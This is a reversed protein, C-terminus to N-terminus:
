RVEVTMPVHAFGRVNSSYFRECHAHDVAVAAVRRVFEQLAVRAELRALNSGLCFHRGGAFSMIRGLQERPRDLDYRDPDPFVAEDRNASGYALLLKAGAPATVGHRTIDQTLHRAVLQTSNDYRLTEEIWVPVLAPDGLVRELLAPRSTLHYITNGLLKTTTENGAVVMLFLFAIVEEPSMRDGEVRSHLLASTLDDTPERQRRAVHRGYYEFLAMSAEIGAPPVDRLGDERSVLLDALRRVEARDSEPVGVMESIVDMPLKGAFEGIWDFSVSEGSGPDPLVQDLYRDTLAQISPELRAVRKPTFGGSVLGRLRKHRPPDMALFSMVMSAHPGWASKDLSVGMANSFPEDALLADAIDAHRSLVWFDHETNHHLPQEARLRAYTPYPDDILAHDWPDFSLPAGVKLPSM